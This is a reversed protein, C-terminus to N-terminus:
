RTIGRKKGKPFKVGPNNKLSSNNGKDKLVAIPFFNGGGSVVQLRHTDGKNPGKTMIKTFKTGPTTPNPM